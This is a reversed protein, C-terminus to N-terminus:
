WHVPPWFSLRLAHPRGGCPSLPGVAHPLPQLVWGLLLFPCLACTDRRGWISLAGGEGISAGLPEELSFRPGQYLLRSM